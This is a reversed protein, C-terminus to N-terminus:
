PLLLKICFLIGFNHFMYTLAPITPTFTQSVPLTWLRSSTVEVSFHFLFIMLGFPNWTLLSTSIASADQTLVPDCRGRRGDGRAGFVSNCCCNPSHLRCSTIVRRGKSFLRRDWDVRHCADGGAAPVKSRDSEFTVSIVAARAQTVRQRASPIQLMVISELEMVIGMDSGFAQAVAMFLRPIGGM